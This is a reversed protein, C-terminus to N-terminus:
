KVRETAIDRGREIERNRDKRKTKRDTMDRNRNKRKTKRETM